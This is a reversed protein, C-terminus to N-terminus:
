VEKTEQKLRFLLHVAEKVKVAAVNGLDRTVLLSPIQVLFGIALAEADEPASTGGQYFCFFVFVMNNVMGM